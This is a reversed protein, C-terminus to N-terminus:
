PVHLILTQGVAGGDTICRVASGEARCTVTKEPASQTSEILSEFAGGASAMKLDLCTSSGRASADVLMKSELANERLM